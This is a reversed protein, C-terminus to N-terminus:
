DSRLNAYIKSVFMNSAQVSIAGAALGYCGIFLAIYLLFCVDNAFDGISGRTFLYILAYGAMFLAGSAGVAFSRWWWEYNQYCLVM